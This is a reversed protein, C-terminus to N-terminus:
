KTGLPNGLWNERQINAFSVMFGVSFPLIIKPIQCVFKPIKALLSPSVPCVGTLYLIYHLIKPIKPVYCTM